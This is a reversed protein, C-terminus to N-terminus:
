RRHLFLRVTGAAIEDLTLRDGARYWQGAWNVAGLLLLRALKADGPIRGHGALEDILGQWLADYRDKVAVIRRRSAADLSRWDYLLVPIFDNGDELITALHVRILRELKKEPPLGLAVVEETRRLGETLGQEVVAVLMEQKTKFHYFPSGSHMGAANSIDRITTADFGKERFLRACVRLLEERRNSENNRRIKQNRMAKDSFRDGSKPAMRQPRSKRAAMM